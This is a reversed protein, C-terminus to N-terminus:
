QVSETDIRTASRTPGPLDCGVRPEKDWEHGARFAQCSATLEPKGARRRGIAGEGDWVLV